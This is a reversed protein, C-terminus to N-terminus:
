PKHEIHALTNGKFYLSVHRIEMPGMGRRWTFAYDWRNNNFTPNLLSNGMLIAADNRSMGVRLREVKSQPLLNGQQIIRRSFDYSQCQTLILVMLVTIFFNILRMKKGSIFFKAM